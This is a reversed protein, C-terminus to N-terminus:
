VFKLVPGDGTMRSIKVKTLQVEGKKLERSDALGLNM